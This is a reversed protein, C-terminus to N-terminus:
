AILRAAASPTGSIRRVFGPARWQRATATILGIWMMKSPGTPQYQPPMPSPARIVTLPDHPHLTPSFRIDPVISTCPLPPEDAPAVRRPPRTKTAPVVPAREPM